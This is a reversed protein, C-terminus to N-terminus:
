SWAPQAIPACLSCTNVSVQVERYARAMETETFMNDSMDQMLAAVQEANCCTRAVSSGSGLAPSAERAHLERQLSIAHHPSAIIM